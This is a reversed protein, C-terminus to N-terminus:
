PNARWDVLLELFAQAFVDDVSKQYHGDAMFGKIDNPSFHEETAVYSVNYEELAARTMQILNLDHPNRSQILFVIPRQNDERVMQSFDRIILHLTEQIPFEGEKEFVQKSQTQALSAFARRVLRFFPSYDLLPWAFAYNSYNADHEALQDAWLRNLAPDQEENLSSVIPYKVSLEDEVARYIPYTFPIPQEFNWTRNSFSPMGVLASSLFALVVVDGQERFERDALAVHYVSNPPATPATHLDWALSPDRDVAAHLINASFSM